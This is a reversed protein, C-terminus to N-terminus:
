FFFRSIVHFLIEIYIILLEEEIIPRPKWTTYHHIEDFGIEVTFSLAVLGFCAAHRKFANKM